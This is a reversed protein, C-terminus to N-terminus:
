HYRSAPEPLANCDVWGDMPHDGSEDMSPEASPAQAPQSAQQAAEPTPSPEADEMKVDAEALNGNVNPM